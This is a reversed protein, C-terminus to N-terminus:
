EHWHTEIMEDALRLLRAMREPGIAPDGVLGIRLAQRIAAYDAAAASDPDAEAARLRALRDADAAAIGAAVAADGRALARLGREVALAVADDPGPSERWDRALAALFDGHAAFHHYFSGRTKGARATLAEVTLAGPGAEALAARGLAIWGAKTMRAM